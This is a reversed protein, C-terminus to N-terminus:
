LSLAWWVCCCCCYVPRPQTCARLVALPQWHASHPAQFHPVLPCHPAPQLLAQLAALPPLRPVPLLVLPHLQAALQPCGQLLVLWLLLLLQPWVHYGRGVEDCVGFSHHCLARECPAFTHHPATESQSESVALSHCAALLPTHTHSPTQKAAM